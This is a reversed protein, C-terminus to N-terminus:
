PASALAGVQRHDEVMDVAGAAGEVDVEGDLKTDM